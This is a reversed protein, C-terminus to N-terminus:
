ISHIKNHSCPQSASLGRSSRHHHRQKRPFCPPLPASLFFFCQCFKHSHRSPLTQGSPPEENTWQDTRSQRVGAWAEGGDRRPVGHAGPHLGPGSGLGPQHHGPAVESRGPLHQPRVCRHGPLWLDARVHCCSASVCYRNNILLSRWNSIALCVDGQVLRRLSVSELKM